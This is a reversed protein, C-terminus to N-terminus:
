RTIKDIAATGATTAAVLQSRSAATNARQYTWHQYTWGLGLLFSLALGLRLLMRVTNALPGVAPLAADADHVDM